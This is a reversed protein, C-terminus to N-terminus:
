HCSSCQVACSTSMGFACAMSPTRSSCEPFLVAMLVIIYIRHRMGASNVLQFMSLPIGIPQSVSGSHLSCPGMLVCAMTSAAIIHVINYRLAMTRIINCAAGDATHCHNSAEQMATIRHTSAAQPQLARNFVGVTPVNCVVMRQVRRACVQMGRDCTSFQRPMYTSPETGAQRKLTCHNRWVATHLGYMCPAHGSRICAHQLHETHCHNGAEQMAIIRRHQWCQLATSCALLQRTVCWVSHSGRVYKCAGTVHASSDAHVVVAKTGAAALKENEIHLAPQAM